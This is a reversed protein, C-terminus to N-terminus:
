SDVRPAEAPESPKRDLIAAARRRLDFARHALNASRERLRKSRLKTWRSQIRVAQGPDKLMEIVCRVDDANVALMSRPARGDLYYMEAGSRRFLAGELEARRIAHPIRRVDTSYEYVPVTGAVFSAISEMPPPNRAGAYVGQRIAALAVTMPILTHPLSESNTRM